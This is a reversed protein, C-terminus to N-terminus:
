ARQGALFSGIREIGQQLRESPVVWSIRLWGEASDGFARGPVTVVRMHELLQEAVSLSDLRDAPLRVLAYFAGEPPIIELAASRASETLVELNELYWERHASLREPRRFIELAAVQSFTSAATNVFQHVKVAAGIVEEPGILWGLRMGTMANSKSLSGALLSYPHWTAISAPPEPTYYLERYVEDALVYVPRAATSLGLALAELERAPWIRGTPNSPSNLVVLRTEPRVAELVAEARPRFRDERALPVMRYRIREMACIKVYALYCPEVVLVEDEAPDILSKIALYLAEESGVTICAESPRTFRSSGYRAVVMERLPELGANSTYPCGNHRVWELATELSELDPRLTPEGLGLDIDGVRKRANISRILSPPIAAVAPNM